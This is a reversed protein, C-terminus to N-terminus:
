KQWPRGCTPCCHQRVYQEVYDWTMLEFRPTPPTPAKISGLKKALKARWQSAKAKNRIKRCDPCVKRSSGGDDKRLKCYICVYM